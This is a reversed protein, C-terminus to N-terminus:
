RARRCSWGRRAVISLAARWVAFPYAPQLVKPNVGAQELQAILGADLVPEALRFLSEFATDFVLQESVSESM